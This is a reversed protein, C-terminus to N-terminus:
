RQLPKKTIAHVPQLCPFLLKDLPGNRRMPIPVIVALNLKRAALMDIDCDDARIVTREYLLRSRM